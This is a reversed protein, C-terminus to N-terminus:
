KRSTSFLDALAQSKKCSLEFNREYKDEFDKPEVINKEVLVEKLTSLLANNQLALGFTASIIEDQTLNFKFFPDM